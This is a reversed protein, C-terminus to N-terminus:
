RSRKTKKNESDVKNMMKLLIFGIMAVNLFLAAGVIAAIVIATNM